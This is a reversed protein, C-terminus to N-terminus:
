HSLPKFNEACSIQIICQEVKLNQLGNLWPAAYTYRQRYGLKCESRRQKRMQNSSSLFLRKEADGPKGQEPM